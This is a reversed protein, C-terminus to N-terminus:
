KVKGKMFDDLLKTQNPLTYLTIDYNNNVLWNAIKKVHISNGSSIFAIKM